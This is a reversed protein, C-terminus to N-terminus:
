GRKVLKVPFLQNQGNECLAAPPQLLSSGSFFFTLSLLETGAGGVGGCVGGWPEEPDLSLDCEGEEVQPPVVPLKPPTPTPPAPFPKM